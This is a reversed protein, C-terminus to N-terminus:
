ALIEIFYHYIIVRRNKNQWVSIYTGKLMHFPKNLTERLILKEHMKYYCIGNYQYPEHSIFETNINLVVSFSFLSTSFTKTTSNIELVTPSEEQVLLNAWFPSGWAM